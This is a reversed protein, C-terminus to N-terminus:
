PPPADVASETRPKTRSALIFTEQGIWGLLRGGWLAEDRLHQLVPFGMRDMTLAERRGVYLGCHGHPVSDFFVVSFLPPPDNQHLPLSAAATRADPWRADARLLRRVFLLSRGAYEEEPATM